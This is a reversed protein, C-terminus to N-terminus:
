MRLWEHFWWTYQYTQKWSRDGEEMSWFASLATMALGAKLLRKREFSLGRSLVEVREWLVRKPDEKEQLHNMLFSVVDFYPDGIIGKPDIAIWGKEESFLINEHHLDGHLLQLGETTDTMEKFFQEALQLIEESFQGTQYEQMKRCRPLQSAWQHIMPFHAGKPAQRRLAKWVNMFQELVQEEDELEALMTGPAVKELLIVGNEVDAKLLRCCGNGDYLQLARMENELERSSLSVKLITPVGNEDLVNLVYNYSLNSVPGLSILNWRALYGNVREELTDLWRAGEEKFARTMKKRFSDPIYM